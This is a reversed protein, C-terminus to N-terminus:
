LSLEEKLSELSIVEGEKAEKIGQQLDEIFKQDSVIEITEMLSAFQEINFTIMVPKGEKTVIVPEDTLQDSLEPLQQQAESITLYKAM